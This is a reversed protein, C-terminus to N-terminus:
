SLSCPLLLNCDELPKQHMDVAEAGVVRGLGLGHSNGLAHRSRLEHVEFIVSPPVGRFEPGDRKRTSSPRIPCTACRYTRVRQWRVVVGGRANCPGLVGYFMKLPRTCSRDDLREWWQAVRKKKDETYGLIGAVDMTSPADVNAVVAPRLIGSEVAKEGSRILQTRHIQACRLSREGCQSDRLARLESCM